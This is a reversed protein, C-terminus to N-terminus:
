LIKILLNQSITKKKRRWTQKDLKFCASGSVARLVTNLWRLNVHIFFHAVISRHSLFYGYLMIVDQCFMPVLSFLHRVKRTKILRYGHSVQYLFVQRNTIFALSKEFRHVHQIAALMAFRMALMQNFLKLNSQEGSVILIKLAATFKKKLNKREIFEFAGQFVRM